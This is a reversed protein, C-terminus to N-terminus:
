PTPKDGRQSAMTQGRFPYLPCMKSTCVKPHDDWGLCEVCMLFIGQKRGYTFTKTGEDRTRITHKRRGSKRPAESHGKLRESRTKPTAGQEAVKGGWETRGQITEATM